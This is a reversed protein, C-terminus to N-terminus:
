VAKSIKYTCSLLKIACLFSHHSAKSDDEFSVELSMPFTGSLKNLSAAQEMISGSNPCEASLPMGLEHFLGNIRQKDSSHQCYHMRVSSPMNM